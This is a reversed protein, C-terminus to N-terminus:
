GYANTTSYHVVLEGRAGFCSFLDQLPESPSPSFAADCYLFLREDVRLRLQLRLFSEVAAFPSRGEILFRTQRMQPAGGVALFHLTVKQTANANAAEANGPEATGPNAM